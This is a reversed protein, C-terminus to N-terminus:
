TGFLDGGLAFSDPENESYSSETGKKGKKEAAREAQVRRQAEAPDEKPAAAASLNEQGHGRNEEKGPKLDTLSITGKETEKTAPEVYESWVSNGDAISKYIKRLEAIEAPSCEALKHNLKQELMAPTVNLGAFAIIVKKRASEPDTKVGAELTQDCQTRADEILDSPM